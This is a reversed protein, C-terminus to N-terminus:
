APPYAPFVVGELHPAYREWRGASSTYLPRNVQDYSLTRVTRKTEHFSLCAEDWELGLFEILRPFQRGPDRVLDEYRVDLIPVGLTARWHDMMRLSQEWAAAVWEIKTTWPYMANNFGGMYCSIAVDRPDRMAHIIRTGPFLRALLGVIRNNGLAKNVIRQAGAPARSRIEAVYAEAAQSWQAEGMEGFCAPPEKDPDFVRSLLSAFNEITGLEGVGAAHPHADIVQDILSTGSRPMGAIFVPLESRVSSLPFREMREASWHQMLTGVQQAYLQPDFELRGIPNGATASAFADDYRGARDCAKARLYHELRRSQEPTSDAAIMEDLMAIADDHRKEQVLLKAMEYRLATPLPKGAEELSAILPEISARAEAHRGAEELTGARHILLEPEGPRAALARDCEAIAADTEGMRRLGRSLAFRTDPHEIEALSRRAHQVTLQPQHTREAVLAVLYHAEANRADRALVVQLEAYARDLRDAGLHGRARALAQVDLKSAQQRQTSRSAGGGAGSILSRPDM